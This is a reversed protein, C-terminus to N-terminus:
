LDEDESSPDREDFHRHATSTQSSTRRVFVQSFGPRKLKSCECAVTVKFHGMTWSEELSTTANPSSSILPLPNCVGENRRMVNVAYRIPICKYLGDMCQKNVCRGTLIYAPYTGNPMEQWYKELSCQWLPKFSSPDHRHQTRHRKQAPTERKSRSNGGSETAEVHESGRGKLRKHSRRRKSGQWRTDDGIGSTSMEDDSEFTTSLGDVDVYDDGEASRHLKSSQSYKKSSKTLANKKKRREPTEEADSTDRDRSLKPKPTFRKHRSKAVKKSHQKDSGPRKRSRKSSFNPDATTTTSTDSAQRKLYDNYSDVPNIKKWLIEKPIPKCHKPIQPKPHRVTEPARRVRPAKTTKKSKPRTLNRKRRIKASPTIPSALDSTSPRDQSATRSIVAVSLVSDPNPDGYSNISYNDLFEYEMRQSGRSRSVITQEELSHAGLGHIEGGLTLDKQAEPELISDTKAASSYESLKSPRPLPFLHLPELSASSSIIPTHNLAPWQSSSFSRQALVVVQWRIVFTQDTRSKLSIGLEFM